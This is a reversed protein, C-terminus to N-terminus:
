CNIPEDLVVGKRRYTRKVINLNSKVTYFIEYVEWIKEKKLKKICRDFMVSVKVQSMKLTEAGIIYSTSFFMITLIAIEQETFYQPATKEVFRVFVDSVSHLYSICKLRRRIQKIDYCLSSQGRKMIDQVETQKKKSLFILYLIDRDKPNLFSFLAKFYRINEVSLYPSEGGESELGKFNEVNQGVYSVQIAM